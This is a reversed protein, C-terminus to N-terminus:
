SSSSAPEFRGSFSRRRRCFSNRSGVLTSIMGRSPRVHNGHFWPSFDLFQFFFVFIFSVVRRRCLRVSLLSKMYAAFLTTAARRREWLLYTFLYGCELIRGVRHLNESWRWAVGKLVKRLNKFANAADRTRRRSSSRDNCRHHHECIAFTITHHSSRSWQVPPSIYIPRQAYAPLYTYIFYYYYNPTLTILTNRLQFAKFPHRWCDLLWLSLSLIRLNVM